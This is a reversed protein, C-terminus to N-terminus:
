GDRDALGTETDRETWGENVAMGRHGHTENMGLSRRETARLERRTQVSKVRRNERGSPSFEMRMRREFEVYKKGCTEEVRGTDKELKGGTREGYVYDAIKKAKDKRISYSAGCTCPGLRVEKRDQRALRINRRENLM